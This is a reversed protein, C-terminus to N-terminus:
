GQISRPLCFNSIHAKKRLMTKLTSFELFKFEEGGGFVRVRIGCFFESVSIRAWGQFDEGKRIRICFLFSNCKKKVKHDLGGGGGGGLQM